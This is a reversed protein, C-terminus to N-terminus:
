LPRICLFRLSGKIYVIRIDFYLWNLGGPSVCSTYDADFSTSFLQGIRFM